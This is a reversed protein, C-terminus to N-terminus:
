VYIYRGYDRQEIYRYADNWPNSGKPCITKLYVTRFLSPEPSNHYIFVRAAAYPCEPYDFTAYVYSLRECQWKGIFTIDSPIYGKGLAYCWFYEAFSALSEIVTKRKGAPRTQANWLRTDMNLYHIAHTLEHMFVIRVCEIFEDLTRTKLMPLYSSYIANVYLVILNDGPVYSGLKISISERNKLHRLFEKVKKLADEIEKSQTTGDISQLHERLKEMLDVTDNELEDFLQTEPLREYCELYKGRGGEIDTINIYISELLDALGHMGLRGLLDLLEDLEKRLESLSYAGTKYRVVKNSIFVEPMHHVLIRSSFVEHDILKEYFNDIISRNNETLEKTIVNKLVPDKLDLLSLKGSYMAM